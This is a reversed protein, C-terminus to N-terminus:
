SLGLRVQRAIMQAIQNATNNDVMGGTVQVNFTQTTAGAPATAAVAVGAGASPAANIAATANSSPNFSLGELNRAMAATATAAGALSTYIADASTASAALPDGLAQLEKFQDSNISIEKRGKLIGDVSENMKKLSELEKGFITPLTDAEKGAEAMADKFATAQKALVDDSAGTGALTYLKNLEDYATGIDAQAENFRPNNFAISAFAQGGRLVEELKGRNNLELADGLKRVNTNVSAYADGRAQILDNQQKEIALSKKSSANEGSAAALAKGLNQAATTQDAYGKVQAAAAVGGKRLQDQWNKEATATRELSKELARQAEIVSRQDYEDNDRAGAASILSAARDTQGLDRLKAAQRLLDLTSGERELRADQLQALKSEASKQRSQSQDHLSGLQSLYSKWNSLSEQLGQQELRNERSWDRLGIGEQDLGIRRQTFDSQKAADQLDSILKATRAARDLSSNYADTAAASDRMLDPLGLLSSALAAGATAAVALGIGVPGAAAAAKGLDLAIGAIGNGAGAFKAAGASMRDFADGAQRGARDTDKGLKTIAATAQSTDYVVRTTTTNSNSAM